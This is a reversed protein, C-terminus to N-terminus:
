EKGSYWGSARPVDDSEEDDLDPLFVRWLPDMDEAVAGNMAKAKKDKEKRSTDKWGMYWVSRRADFFLRPM